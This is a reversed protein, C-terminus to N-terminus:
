NPETRRWSLRSNVTKGGSQIPSATSLRLTDGEVRVVRPQTQGVWNPYLSVFMSHTLHRKEEDTRFPGSYAIHGSAVDRVEETTEKFWEGSAFNPREPRELQASMCGDPPYMTIGQPREGLPSYPGSGDVPEDVYSVLKWAGISQDRSRATM